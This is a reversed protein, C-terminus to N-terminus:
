GRRRRFGFDLHLTDVEFFFNPNHDDPGTPIPPHGEVDQERASEPVPYEAEVVVGVGGERALHPPHRYEPVHAHELAHERHLRDV